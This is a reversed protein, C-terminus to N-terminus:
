RERPASAGGIVVWQVLERGDNTRSPEGAANDNVRPAGDDKPFTHLLESIKLLEIHLSGFTAQLKRARSSLWARNEARERDTAPADFRNM